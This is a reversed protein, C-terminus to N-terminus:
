QLLGTINVAFQKQQCPLSWAVVVQPNPVRIQPYQFRLAPLELLIPVRIQPYQFLLALVSLPTQVQSPQTPYDWMLPLRIKRGALRLAEFAQPSTVEHVLHRDIYLLCMGDPRETVVHRDWIKRIITPMTVWLIGRLPSRNKEPQM